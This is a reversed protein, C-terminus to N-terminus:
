FNKTASGSGPYVKKLGPDPIIRKGFGPDRDPVNKPSVIPIM